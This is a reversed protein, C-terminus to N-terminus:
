TFSLTCVQSFTQLTPKDFPASKVFIFKGADLIVGPVEDVIEEYWSRSSIHSSRLSLNSENWIAAANLHRVPSFRYLLGNTTSILFLTLVM